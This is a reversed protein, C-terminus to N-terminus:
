TLKNVKELSGPCGHGVMLGLVVSSVTTDPFSGLKAKKGKKAVASHKSPLVSQTIHMITAHYAYDNRSIRLRQM